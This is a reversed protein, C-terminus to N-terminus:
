SSWTSKKPRIPTHGGDAYIPQVQETTNPSVTSWNHPDAPEGPQFTIVTANAPSPRGDSGSESETSPVEDDFTPPTRQEEETKERTLEAQHHMKPSTLSEYAACSQNSTPFIVGRERGFPNRFELVIRLCRHRQPLRATKDTRRLVSPVTAGCERAKTEGNGQSSIALHPYMRRSRVHHPGTPAVLRNKLRNAYMAPPTPQSIAPLLVSCEQLVFKVKRSRAEGQKVPKM